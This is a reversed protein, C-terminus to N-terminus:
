AGDHAIISAAKLFPIGSGDRGQQGSDIGPLLPFFLPPKEAQDAPPGCDDAALNTAQGHRGKEALIREPDIDLIRGPHVMELEDLEVQEVSDVLGKTLLRNGVDAPLQLRLQWGDRFSLGRDGMRHIRFVFSGNLLHGGADIVLLTPFSKLPEPALEGGVTIVEYLM